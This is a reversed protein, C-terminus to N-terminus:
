SVPVNLTGTIANGRDDTVQVTIVLVGVRGIGAQSWLNGIRTTGTTPVTLFSGAPLRNNGSMTVIMAADYTFDDGVTGAPNRFKSNISNVVGGLGASEAITVTVTAACLSQTTVCTAVQSTPSATVTIVAKSPQTPTPATPSSSSGGCSASVLSLIALARKM